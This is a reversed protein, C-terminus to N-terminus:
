EPSLSQLECLGSMATHGQKVRPARNLRQHRLTLIEGWQVPLPRRILKPASMNTDLDMRPPPQNYLPPKPGAHKYDHSASSPEAIRFLLTLQNSIKCKSTKIQIQYLDERSRIAMLGLALRGHRGTLSPTNGFTREEALVSAM